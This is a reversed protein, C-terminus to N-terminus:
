RERARQKLHVLLVAIDAPTVGSVRAAQGVSGPRIRDLKERTEFRLHGISRFDFDSPISRSEFERMRLVDQKQREIYGEYKVDVEIQEAIEPPVRLAGLAPHSDALSALETEPRRLWQTLTLGEHFTRDLAERAAAIRREKEELRRVRAASALGAAHGAPTLRRDANDHRLLLRYEARSTFMRYPETVGLTVLDDVLVGIYAQDRTLIFAPRGAAKRAANIGAVLGLAGAEEYGTTGNIQGALHLGEVSRTELTPKLQTPIVFDYEVAYGYRLIEARELGVISHVMEEQVDPPMSTSVGNLYVELTNRGEPELFLQHRAREAFKVIKDEISPCYRPGRAQIQGTYMPARHLNARLVDHTRANTYTTFCHMQIADIRETEFSFPQPKADGPQVALRSYDLTRGNVRPPTGTKMRGMEFGLRALSGSISEAAPEAMRGGPTQKEGLHLLGRMFTGTTVVVQGARYVFGSRARLGRVRDGAVLIEEVMDQRLTLRDQAEVVRKMEFQYAKKDAQARPSRVAPGKRTNLMRFHIGTRDIARGMQGGLADIERVLQGKALGGIAPNCSMQGVADANITLLLTRAGMRAAALAAECGAHGAGVVIVDFPVPFEM